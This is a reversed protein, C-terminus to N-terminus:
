PVDQEVSWRGNQLPIPKFSDTHIKSIENCWHQAAIRSAFGGEPFPNKRDFDERNGKWYKM